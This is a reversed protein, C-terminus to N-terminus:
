EKNQKNMYLKSFIWVKLKFWPNRYGFPMWTKKYSNAFADFHLGHPATLVPGRQLLIKMVETGLVGTALSCGMPTSPGKQDRLNFYETDAVAKMQVGSPTLGLIFRAIKQNEDKATDLGFYNKFSMKGPMFNLLAAGMGIPAVTVSPIYKQSCAEFVMSRTSLAFADLGDVYCDVGDLFADVNSSNTGMPFKVIEIEPNILKAQKEMVEIKAEGITSMNAGVQRNFNEIGFFDFDSIHFKTVGLRVLTLLHVGGVGGLGAIAVKKTRLIRVEDATMWGLNRSFAVNYDFPTINEPIKDHIIAPTENQNVNKIELNPQSDKTKM